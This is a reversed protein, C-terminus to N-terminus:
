EQCLEVMTQIAEFAASYDGSDLATKFEEAAVAGRKSYDDLGEEEEMDEGEDMEGEMEPKKAKTMVALIADAIHGKKM